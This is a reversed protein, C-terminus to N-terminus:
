SEAPAANLQMYTIGYVYFHLLRGTEHCTVM